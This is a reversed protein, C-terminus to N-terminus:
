FHTLEILQFIFDRLFQTWNLLLVLAQDNGIRHWRLYGRHCGLHANAKSAGTAFVVLAGSSRPHHIPSFM